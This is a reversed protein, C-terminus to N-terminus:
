HESTIVMDVEEAGNAIADRTEMAKVFPTNRGISITCTKVGSGKLPESVYRVHTPNVCVSAFGNSLRMM